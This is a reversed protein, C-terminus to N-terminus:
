CINDAWYPNVLERDTLKAVVAIVIVGIHYHKGVLKHTEKKCIHSYVCGM